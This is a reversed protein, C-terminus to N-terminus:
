EPIVVPQPVYAAARPDIGVYEVDLGLDKARKFFQYCTLQSFNSKTSIFLNQLVM